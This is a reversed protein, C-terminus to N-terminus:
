ATSAGSEPVAVAAVRPRRADILNKIAILLGLGLFAGPPLVALLFGRYNEIVTIKLAAAWDGLLFQANALLTGAGIVERMGGLVVLVATFGLGMSLGDLM